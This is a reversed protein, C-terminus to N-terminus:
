KHVVERFGKREVTTGFEGGLLDQVFLWVRSWSVKIVVWREDSMQQSLLLYLVQWSCRLHHQAPLPIMLLTRHPFPRFTPSDRRLDQNILSSIHRLVRSLVVVVISSSPFYHLTGRAKLFLLSLCHRWCLFLRCYHFFRICYNHLLGLQCRLGLRCARESELVFEFLLGCGRDWDM